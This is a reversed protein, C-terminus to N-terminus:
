HGYPSPTGAGMTDCHTGSTSPQVLGPGAPLFIGWFMTKM